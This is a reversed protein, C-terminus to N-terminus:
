SENGNGRKKKEFDEIKEQKIRWTDGVKFADLDGNRILREVTKRSVDWSEALEDIRYSKKDSM